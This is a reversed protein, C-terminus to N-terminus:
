SVSSHRQKLARRITYLNILANRREASDDPLDPLMADIARILTVLQIWDYRQLEKTSLPRM